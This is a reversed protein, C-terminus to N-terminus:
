AMFVETSSSFDAASCTAASIAAAARVAGLVHPMSLMLIAAISSSGVFCFTMELIRSIAVLSLRGPRARSAPLMSFEGTSTTMPTSGLGAPKFQPNQPLGVQSASSIAPPVQVKLEISRPMAVMDAASTGAPEM